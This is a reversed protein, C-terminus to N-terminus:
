SLHSLNWLRVTSGFCNELAIAKAAHCVVPTRFTTVPVDSSRICAFCGLKLTWITKTVKWGIISTTCTRFYFRRVVVCVCVTRYRPETNFVVERWTERIPGLKRRQSRYITEAWAIALLWVRAIISVCSFRAAFYDHFSFSNVALLTWYNPLNRAKRASAIWCVMKAVDRFAVVTAPPLFPELVPHQVVSGKISIIARVIICYFALYTQM